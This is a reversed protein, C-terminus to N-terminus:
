PYSLTTASTETVGVTNPVIGGVVDAYGYTVIAPPLQPPGFADDEWDSRSSYATPGYSPDDIGAPLTVVHYQFFSAYPPPATASTNGQGPLDPNVQLMPYYPVASDLQVVTSVIEQIGLIDHYLRGFSSCDGNTLVILNRVNSGFSGAGYYKYPTSTGPVTVNRGNFTGRIGALTGGSNCGTEYLQWYAKGHDAHPNTAASTIYVNHTTSNMAYTTGSSVAQWNWGINYTYVSSSAPNSNIQFNTVTAIGDTGLTVSKSVIGGWNGSASFDATASAPGHIKVKIYKPGTSNKFYAAPDNSIGNKWEYDGTSGAIETDSSPEWVPRADSGSGNRFSVAVIAYDKVYVKLRPLLLKGVGGLIKILRQNNFRIEYYEGSNTVKASSNARVTFSYKGNGIHTPNSITLDSTSAGSPAHTTEVTAIITHATAKKTGNSLTHYVTLTHDKAVTVATVSAYVNATVLGILLTSIIFYRPFMIKEKM